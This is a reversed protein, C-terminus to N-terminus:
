ILSVNNIIDFLIRYVELLDGDVLEIEDGVCCLCCLSLVFVVCVFRIVIRYDVFLVFVNWKDRLLLYYLCVM